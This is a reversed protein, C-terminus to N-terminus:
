VIVGLRTIGTFQSNDKVFGQFPIPIVLKQRKVAHVQKSAKTVVYKGM